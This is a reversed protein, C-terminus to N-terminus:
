LNLKPNNHRFDLGPLTALAIAVPVSGLRFYQVNKRQLDQSVPREIQAWHSLRSSTRHEASTGLDWVTLFVSALEYVLNKLKLM